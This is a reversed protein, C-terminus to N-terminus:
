HPTPQRERSQRCQSTLQPKTKRNTYHGYRARIPPRNPPGQKGGGNIPPPCRAVVLTCFPKAKKKKNKKIIKEDRQLLVTTFGRLELFDDQLFFESFTHFHTSFHWFPHFLASVIKVKLQQGKTKRQTLGLGLSM